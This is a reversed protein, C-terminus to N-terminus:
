IHIFPHDRIYIQQEDSCLGVSPVINEVFIFKEKKIQQILPLYLKDKWDKSKSGIQHLNNWFGM